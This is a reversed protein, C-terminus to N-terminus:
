MPQLLPLTTTHNSDILVQISRLLCTIMADDGACYHPFPLQLQLQLQPPQPQNNDNYSTDYLYCSGNSTSISM